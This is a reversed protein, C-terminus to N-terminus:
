VVGGGHLYTTLPGWNKDRFPCTIYHYLTLLLVVPLPLSQPLTGTPQKHNRGLPSVSVALSLKEMKRSSDATQIKLHFKGMYFTPLM